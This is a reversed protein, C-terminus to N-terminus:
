NKSILMGLDREEDISKIWDNIQYQFKLNGKRVHMVGCKNVNFEMDCRNAWTVLKDLTRQM